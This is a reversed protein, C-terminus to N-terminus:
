WDKEPQANGPPQTAQKQSLTGQDQQISDLLQQSQEVSMTSESSPPTEDGSQSSDSQPTPTVPEPSPTRQDPNQDAPNTTPTLGPIQEPEPSATPPVIQKLALELNYRADDDDPTLLLTQEYADVADDFLSMEYYVNGLNYYGKATLAEDSTKLAQKLADQADQLKGLQAQANAANFYPEAADPSLVQAAQYANLANEYDGQNYLTRGANNREAPNAACGSVVMCIVLLGYLSRRM